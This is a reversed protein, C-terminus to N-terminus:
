IVMRRPRQQSHVSPQRGKFAPTLISNGTDNVQLTSFRGCTGGALTRLALFPVESLIIKTKKVCPSGVQFGWLSIDGGEM